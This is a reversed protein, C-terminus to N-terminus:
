PKITETLANLQATPCDDDGHVLNLKTQSCRAAVEIAGAIALMEALASSPVFGLVNSFPTPLSVILKQRFAPVAVDRDITAVLSGRGLTVCICGRNFREAKGSDM